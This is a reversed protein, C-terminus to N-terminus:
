FILNFLIYFFEGTADIISFQEIDEQGDHSPSLLQFDSFEQDIDMLISMSDYNQISSDGDNLHFGRMLGSSSPLLDDDPIQIVNINNLEQKSYESITLDKDQM